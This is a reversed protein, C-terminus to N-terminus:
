QNAEVSFPERLYPTGLCITLKQCVRQWRHGIYSFPRVPFWFPCAPYRWMLSQKAVNLVCILENKCPSTKHPYKELWLTREAFMYTASEILWGSHWVGPLSNFPVIQEWFNPIWSLLFVQLSCTAPSPSFVTPALTQCLSLSRPIALLFAGPCLTPSASAPTLFQARSTWTHLCSPSLCM